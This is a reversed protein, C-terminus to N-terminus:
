KRYIIRGKTGDPSLEVTVRDGMMVKIYHLRMKGALYAIIEDGEDLKVRFKTDPLAEIVTAEKKLKEDSLIFLHGVRLM